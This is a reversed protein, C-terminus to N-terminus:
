ALISHDEFVKLNSSFLALKPHKKSSKEIKASFYRVFRSITLEKFFKGEKSTGSSGWTVLSTPIYGTKCKTKFNLLLLARQLKM